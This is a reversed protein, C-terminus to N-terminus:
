AGRSVVRKHSLALMKQSVVHRLHNASVGTENELQAYSEIELKLEAIRDLRADLEATIKRPRSM